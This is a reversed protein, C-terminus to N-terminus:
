VAAGTMYPGLQEATCQAAPLVTVFRGGYMVAIRDSLALVEPLDASVLLVCLHNGQRFGIGRASKTLRFSYLSEHGQSGTISQIKEWHLGKDKYLEPWTLKLIKKFTSRVREAEDSELAIWTRQFEANNLDLQVHKETSAQTKPPPFITLTLRSQQTKQQGHSLKKSAISPKKKM